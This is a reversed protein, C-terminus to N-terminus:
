HMLNNNRFVNYPYFQENIGNGYPQFPENKQYQFSGEIHINDSVKYDFGVLASYSYTPLYQKGVTNSGPNWQNQTYKFIGSFTLKDSWQYNAGILLSYRNLKYQQNTSHNDSLSLYSPMTFNATEAKIGTIVSWKGGPAYTLMPFVYSDFFSTNGFGTGVSAGASVNLSYPSSNRQLVTRNVQSFSLLSCLSVISILITKKM